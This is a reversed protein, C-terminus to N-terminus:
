NSERKKIMIKLREKLDNSNTRWRGNLMSDLREPTTRIIGLKNRYVYCKPNDGDFVYCSILGPDEENNYSLNYIRLRSNEEDSLVNLLVDEVYRKAECDGAFSKLMESRIYDMKLELLLDKNSVNTATIREFYTRTSRIKDDFINDENKIDLEKDMIVCDSLPIIECDCNPLSNYGFNKTQMNAQIRYLDLTLDLLYNDKGDIVLKVAEHHERTRKNPLDRVVVEAFAGSVIGSNIVFALIQSIQYCTQYRSIPHSFDIKRKAIESDIMIRYDYSFLEGLKMYLWRVKYLTPVDDPINLMILDIASSVDENIKMVIVLNM